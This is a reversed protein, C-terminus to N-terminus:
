KEQDSVNKTDEKLQLASIEGKRESLFEETEGQSAFAAFGHGMPTVLDPSHVVVAQDLDLWDATNFAHVWRKQGRGKELTHRLLCGLDDFKEFDGKETQVASAFREETILM